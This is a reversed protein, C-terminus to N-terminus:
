EVITVQKGEEPKSPPPDDVITVQKGEEPKSPPPDDVITVRQPEEANNDQNSQEDAETEAM